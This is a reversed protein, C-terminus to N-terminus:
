QGPQAQPQQKQLSKQWQENLFNYYYKYQNTAFFVLIGILEDQKKFGKWIMLRTINEYNNEFYKYSQYYGFLKFDKAIHPIINYKFLVEERYLPLNM